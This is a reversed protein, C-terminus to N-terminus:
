HGPKKTKGLLYDLEENATICSIESRPVSSLVGDSLEIDFVQSNADRSLLKVIVGSKNLRVLEGFPAGNNM